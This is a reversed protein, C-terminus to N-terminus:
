DSRRPRILRQQEVVLGPAGGLALRQQALQEAQHHAVVGAGSSRAGLWRRAGHVVVPGLWSAPRCIM